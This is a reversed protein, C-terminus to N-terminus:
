VGEGSADLDLVVLNAYGAIDRWSDIHDPNGHVIRALKTCILDMAEKQVSSMGDHTLMVKLQQATCAMDAFDGYNNGREELIENLTPM